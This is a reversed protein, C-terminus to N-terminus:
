LLRYSTFMKSAQEPTKNDFDNTEAPGTYPERRAM